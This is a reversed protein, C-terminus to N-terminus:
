SEASVDAHTLLSRAGDYAKNASGLEMFGECVWEGDKTYARVNGACSRLRDAMRVIAELESIRAQQAECLAHVEEDTECDDITKLERAPGSEGWGSSAM